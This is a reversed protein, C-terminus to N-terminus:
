LPYCLSGLNSVFVQIDGHQKERILCWTANLISSIIYADIKFLDSGKRKNACNKKKAKVVSLQFEVVNGKRQFNLILIQIKEQAGSTKSLM